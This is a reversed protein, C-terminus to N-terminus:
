TTGKKLSQVATAFRFSVLSVLGCNITSKRTWMSNQQSIVSSHRRWCTVSEYLTCYPTAGEKGLMSLTSDKRLGTVAEAGGTCYSSPEANDVRTEVLDQQQPQDQVCGHQPLGCHPLWWSPEGGATSERSFPM